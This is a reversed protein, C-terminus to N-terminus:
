DCMRQYCNITEQTMYSLTMKQQALMQPAQMLSTWQKPNQLLMELRQRLMVVDGVTVILDRPLVENAVPVDTSLINVGCMLAENFVYSFGERRSSIIVADVGRMIATPNDYHGILRVVTNPHLLAIKAELMQREPGQGVILLSVALGDIADLLLDFGKAYVLRGVACIVPKNDPLQYHKKVDITATKPVDIGNYIVEAGAHNILSALYRSVCIVHKFRKFLALRSKINHLTVVKPTKIFWQLMALMATAKNAQAHIVDFPYRRLCRYLQYLLYPNYRSLRMNLAVREVEPTLTNIFVPDGIVLVRHGQTVLSQSLERVHKELGGNGQSAIIQGIFM